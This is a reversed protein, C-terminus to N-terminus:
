WPKMKVGQTNFIKIFAAILVDYRVIYFIIQSPFLYKLSKM